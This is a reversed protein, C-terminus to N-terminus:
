SIKIEKGKNVSEIENLTLKVAEAASEGTVVGSLKGKAIGAVFDKLEHFYGDGAEYKVKMKKKGEPCLVLDPSKSLDVELTAKEMIIFFRMNFGFSDTCRWGGTSAVAFDKYAYTTAIHSIGGDPDKSGVSSVKSPKGFLYLIMDVDHVHLDLAANGSRKSDLLWGDWGWVPPNSFRGFEAYRVKGYKGSDVIKKAEVYFPWFRLCQGVSFLKKTKKVAALMLDAEKATLAMPKECFVHYGAEMAKISYKAHLYTPLCIDVYDFGGDSLMADFDTYKKVTSLDVTGSSSKINGGADLSKINLAGERIDCMAVLKVGKLKQYVGLHTKGMFGIGTVAVKVM